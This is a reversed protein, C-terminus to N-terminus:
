LFELQVVLVVKRNQLFEDLLSAVRWFAVFNLDKTPEDVEMQDRLGLVEAKSRAGEVEEGRLVALHQAVGDLLNQNAENVFPLIFIKQAQLGIM